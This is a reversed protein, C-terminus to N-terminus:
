QQVWDEATGGVKVRAWTSQELPQVRFDVRCGAPLSTPNDLPFANGDTAGLIQNTMVAGTKLSKYLTIDDQRIGNDSGPLADVIVIGWLWFTRNSLFQRQRDAHRTSKGACM